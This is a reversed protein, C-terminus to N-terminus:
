RFSFYLMPDDWEGNVKVTFHLHPGTSRGTNGTLAIVQGANVKDGVKVLRDSLHAFGFRVGSRNEMALCRGGADHDWLETVTGFDPSKVFTGVPAAIDVGNHFSKKHTVPHIRTGFYSTIRGAVPNTYRM